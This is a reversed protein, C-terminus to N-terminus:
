RQEALLRRLLDDPAIGTESARRQLAAWEM